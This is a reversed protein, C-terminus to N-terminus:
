KAEVLEGALEDFNEEFFSEAVDQNLEKSITPLGKFSKGRKKLADMVQTRLSVVMLNRPKTHIIIQLLKGSHKGEVFCVEDFQSRNGEPEKDRYEFSIQFESKDADFAGAVRLPSDFTSLHVELDIGDVKLTKSANTLIDRNVWIYKAM